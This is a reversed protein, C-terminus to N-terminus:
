MSLRAGSKAADVRLRFGQEPHPKARMIAECLAVTSPGIKKAAALLRTPTGFAYGDAWELDDLTAPRMRARCAITAALRM